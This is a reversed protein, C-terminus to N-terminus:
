HSDQIAYEPQIEGIPQVQTVARLSLIIQFPFRNSYHFLCEVNSGPYGMGLGLISKDASWVVDATDRSAGLIFIYLMWWMYYCKEFKILARRAPRALKKAM